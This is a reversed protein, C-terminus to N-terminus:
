RLLAAAFPNLGEGIAGPRNRPSIRTGAAFGWAFGVRRTPLFCILRRAELKVEKPICLGRVAPQRTEGDDHM